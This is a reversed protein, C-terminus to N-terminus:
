GEAYGKKLGSLMAAWPSPQVQRTMTPRRELAGLTQGNQRFLEDLLGRRTSDALAKCVADM